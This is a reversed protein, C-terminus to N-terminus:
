QVNINVAFTEAVFDDNQTITIDARYTGASSISSGNFSNFFSVAAHTEDAIVTFQGEAAPEVTPSVFTGQALTYNIGSNVNVVTMTIVTKANLHEVLADYHGQDFTGNLAFTLSGVNGALTLAAPNAIVESLRMLGGSSPSADDSDCGLIGILSAILVLLMLKNMKKSM